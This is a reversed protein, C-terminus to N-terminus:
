GRAGSRHSRRSRALVVRRGRHWSRALLAAAAIAIVTLVSGVILFITPLIAPTSASGPLEAYSPDKPNVLVTLTDGPGDTERGPVHVTTRAQGGVPAALRVLVEATYSTSTVQHRSSGTGVSHTSTSAINNVSLIVATRRVGHGQVFSSRAADSRTAFSVIIFIVGIILPIVMVLLAVVYGRTRADRVNGNRRGGSRGGPLTQGQM